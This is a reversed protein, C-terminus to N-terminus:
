REETLDACTQAGDKLIHKQLAGIVVNGVKAKEDYVDMNKRFPEELSTEM